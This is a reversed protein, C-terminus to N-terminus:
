GAIAWCSASSLWFRRDCGVLIDLQGARAARQADQARRRIAPLTSLDVRQAGSRLRGFFGDTVLSRADVIEAYHEWTFLPVRYGRNHEMWLLAQSTLDVLAERVPTASVGYLDAIEKVTFRTGAPLRGTMMEDRLAATIQERLSRQQALPRLPSPQAPSSSM